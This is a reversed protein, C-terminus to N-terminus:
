LRELWYDPRRRQHAVAVIIIQAERITYIISYPFRRTLARRADGLHPTGTQPFYTIKRISREVEALFGNGLGPVEGDYRLFADRIERRAAPHFRVSGGIM